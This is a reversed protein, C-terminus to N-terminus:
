LSKFVLNYLMLYVCKHFLICIVFEYTIGEVGLSLSSICILLLGIFLSNLHIFKFMSAADTVFSFITTSGFFKPGLYQSRRRYKNRWSFTPDWWSDDLNKFISEHFRDYIIDLAALASASVIILICGILLMIQRNSLAVNYCYHLMDVERQITFPHYSLVIKVRVNRRSFIYDEVVAMMEEVTVM